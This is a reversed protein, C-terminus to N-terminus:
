LHELDLNISSWFNAGLHIDFEPAESKGDYNGYLFTTRILYRTAKKVKVNYCNRLGEPFIRLNWLLQPYDDGQYLSSATKTIGTDIYSTDPIYNIGTESDTYSSPEGCDISVFGSQDQSNVLLILTFGCGLFFLLYKFM